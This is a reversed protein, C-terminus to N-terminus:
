QGETRLAADAFDSLQEKTHESQQLLQRLRAAPELARVGAKVKPVYVSEKRGWTDALSPHAPTKGCESTTISTQFLSSTSEAPDKSRVSLRFGSPTDSQYAITLNM